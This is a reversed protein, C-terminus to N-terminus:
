NPAAGGVPGSPPEEAGGGRGCETEKGDVIKCFTMWRDYGGLAAALRDGRISTVGGTGYLRAWVVRPSAGRKTVVVRRLKGLLYGDLKPHRLLLEVFGKIIAKM